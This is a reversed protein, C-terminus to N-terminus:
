DCGWDLGQVVQQDRGFAEFGFQFLEVLGGWHGARDLSVHILSDVTFAPGSNDWEPIGSPSM